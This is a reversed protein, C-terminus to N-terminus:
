YMGPVELIVVPYYLLFIVYASIKAKLVEMLSFFRSLPRCTMAYADFDEVCDPKCRKGLLSSYKKLESIFWAM